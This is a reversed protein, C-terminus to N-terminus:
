IKRVGAYYFGDMGAEGPLIQRGPGAAVGWAEPLPVAAADSHAALFATMVAANEAALVSCTAYLLRGGPELLPWLAELLRAQLAAAAAIEGARRRLKIDPHRRIVGTASCPADLLIRAFPKGDWWDGPRAADGAQLGAHLGLRELNERIRELRGADQDLALMEIGPVRELLDCTKGGPAACADLVRMGPQVDLLPAALQAAEDQVSCLGTNFIQWDRVDRPEALVVGDEAHRCNEARLGEAALRALFEARATRRRNVRLTLPARANNAALLTEWNAPWDHRVADILWQPHLHRAPENGELATRLTEQERQFRRLVANVLAVAWPKGLIRAAEATEQVAAHAPVRSESLQYLGLWLLARVEPEGNKLPRALLRELWFDLRPYFRLVGYCLEQVLAADRGAAPLSQRLSESLSGRGRQVGALIQAALVRPARANM